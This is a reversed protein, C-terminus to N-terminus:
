QIADRGIGTSGLRVVASDRRHHFRARVDDADIKSAFGETQTATLEEM